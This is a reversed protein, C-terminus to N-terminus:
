IVSSPNRATDSVMARPVDVRAVNVLFSDSHAVSSQVQLGTWLKAKSDAEAFADVGEDLTVWVEKELGRIGVVVRMGVWGSPEDLGSSDAM